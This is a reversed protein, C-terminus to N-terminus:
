VYNTGYNVHLTDVFIIKFISSHYADMQTDNLHEDIDQMYLHIWENLM